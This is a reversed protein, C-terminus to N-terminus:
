IDKTAASNKSLLSGLYTFKVVDKLTTIPEDSRTNIRMVHAKTTNINLGTKKAFNHLRNTKEQLHVDMSSLLDIDAAFDFDELQQFLTWQIGGPKDSATHRM